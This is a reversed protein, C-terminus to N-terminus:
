RIVVLILENCLFFHQKMLLTV